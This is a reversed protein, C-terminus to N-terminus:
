NSKLSQDRKKDEPKKDCISRTYARSRDFLRIRDLVTCMLSVAPCQQWGGKKTRYSECLWPPVFADRDWAKICRVHFSAGKDEVSQM